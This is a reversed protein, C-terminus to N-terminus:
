DIELRFKFRCLGSQNVSEVLRKLIETVLREPEMRAISDIERQYRRDAASM